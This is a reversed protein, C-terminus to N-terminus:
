EREGERMRSSRYPHPVSRRSRARALLQPHPLAHSPRRPTLISGGVGAWGCGAQAGIGLDRTRAPQRIAPLLPPLPLQAAGSASASAALARSAPARCSRSTSIFSSPSCLAVRLKSSRAETSALAATLSVEPSSTLSSCRNCPPRSTSSLFDITTPCVAGPAAPCPPLSVHPGTPDFWM